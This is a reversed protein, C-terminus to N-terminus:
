KLASAIFQWSKLLDEQNKFSITLTVTDKEFAPAHSLTANKPLRLSDTFQQFNKEAETLRPYRKATLTAMLNAAKQPPNAEPHNLIDTTAALRRIAAACAKKETLLATTDPSM